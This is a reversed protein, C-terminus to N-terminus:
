NRPDAAKPGNSCGCDDACGSNPSFARVKRFVIVGGFLAAASIILMVIFSQLEM